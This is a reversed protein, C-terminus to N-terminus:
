VAAVTETTKRAVAVTSLRLAVVAFILSYSVFLVGLGDMTMAGYFGSAATAAVVALGVNRTQVATLSATLDTTLATKISM